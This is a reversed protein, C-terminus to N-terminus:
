VPQKVSRTDRNCQMLLRDLLKTFYDVVKQGSSVCVLRETLGLDKISLAMQKQNIFQDDAYLILGGRILEKM